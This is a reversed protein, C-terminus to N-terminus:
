HKSIPKTHTSVYPFRSNRLGITNARFTACICDVKLENPVNGTRSIITRGKVSIGSNRQRPAVGLFAAFAKANCFRRIDGLQGLIRAATAMGDDPISVLLQADHKLRPHRGIHDNLSQALQTM